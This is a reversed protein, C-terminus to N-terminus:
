QTVGVIFGAVFGALLAFWFMWDFVTTQWTDRMMVWERPVPCYGVARGRGRLGVPRAAGYVVQVGGARPLAGVEDALEFISQMTTQVGVTMNRNDTVRCGPDIHRCAVHFEQFTGRGFILVGRARIFRRYIADPLPVLPDLNRRGHFPM